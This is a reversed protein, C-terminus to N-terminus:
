YIICEDDVINTLSLLFPRSNRATKIIHNPQTEAETVACHPGPSIKIVKVIVNKESEELGEIEISYGGTSESDIVAVVIEKEFDIDPVNTPPFRKSNHKSWFDVLEM